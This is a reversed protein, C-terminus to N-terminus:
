LPVFGVVALGQSNHGVHHVDFDGGGIDENFGLVGHIAIRGRNFEGNLIAADHWRAM